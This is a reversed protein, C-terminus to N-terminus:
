EKDGKGLSVLYATIRQLDKDNLKLTPM